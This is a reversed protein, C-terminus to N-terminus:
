DVMIIKENERRGRKAIILSVAVTLMAFSISLFIIKDNTFNIVIVLSFLVFVNLIRTKKRFTIFEEKSFPKNVNDVPALWIIVWSAMIALTITVIQLLSAELGSVLKIVFTCIALTAFFTIQCKLHSSAHYGGAFARFAMFTFIYLLVISELGFLASVAISVITPFVASIIYELGYICMEKEKESIIKNKLLTATVKKSIKTIM